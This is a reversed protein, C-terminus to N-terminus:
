PSEDVNWSEVVVLEGGIEFVEVLNGNAASSREVLRPQWGERGDASIMPTVLRAPQTKAFTM